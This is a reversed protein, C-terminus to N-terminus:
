KKSNNIFVNQNQNRCSTIISLLDIASFSEKMSSNDDDLTGIMRGCSSSYGESMHQVVFKM